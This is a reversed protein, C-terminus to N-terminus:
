SKIHMINQKGDMMALNPKVSLIVVVCNGKKSIKSLKEEMPHIESGWLPSISIAERSYEPNKLM